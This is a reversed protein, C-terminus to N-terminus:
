EEDPFFKNLTELNARSSYGWLVSSLADIAQNKKRYYTRETIDPIHPRLQEVIKETNELKQPSLYSYYLIWYYAEGNMHKERLLGVANRLLKIMENSREITRAHRELQTDSLDAGAMYMSELFDDISSEYEIQFQRRMDDVSVTMSWVVERYHTLLKYTDHYRPDHSVSNKGKAKVM